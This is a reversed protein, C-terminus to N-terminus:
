KIVSGATNLDIVEGKKVAPNGAVIWNAPVDKVVVSGAGVKVNDGIQISGIICVNNGVDVHNGIVPATSFTGDAKQKIGITTCHRLTCNKGMVVDRNLILAQGHYIALGSGIKVNWPIELTFIWQIIVKYLILYPISIYFYVKHTTGFNAIRFLFMFIRGKSNGRNASWDQVIFRFFNM